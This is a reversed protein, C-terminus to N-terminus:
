KGIGDLESQLMAIERKVAEIISTSLRKSATIESNHWGYSTRLTVQTNSSKPASFFGLIGWCKQNDELFANLTELQENISNAKSLEGKTM